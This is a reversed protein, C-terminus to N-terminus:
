KVAERSRSKWEVKVGNLVKFYLKTSTTSNLQNAEGRVKIQTHGILQVPLKSLSGGGQLLCSDEGVVASEHHGAQSSNERGPSLLLLRSFNETLQFLHSSALVDRLHEDARNKGSKTLSILGERAEFPSVVLTTGPERTTKCRVGPEVAQANLRAKLVERAADTDRPQSCSSSSTPFRESQRPLM